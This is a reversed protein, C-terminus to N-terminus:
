KLMCVEGSKLWKRIGEEGLDEGCTAQYLNRSREVELGTHM